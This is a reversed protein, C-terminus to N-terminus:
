AREDPVAIGAIRHREHDIPEALEGDREIPCVRAIARREHRPGLSCALKVWRGLGARGPFTADVLAAMKDHFTQYTVVDSMDHKQGAAFIRVPAADSSTATACALVILAIIRQRM